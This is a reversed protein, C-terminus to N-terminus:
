PEWAIVLLSSVIGRIMYFGGGMITLIMCAKEDLKVRM